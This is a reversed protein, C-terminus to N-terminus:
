VGLFVCLTSCSLTGELDQNRNGYILSVVMNDEGAFASIIKVTGWLQSSPSGAMVRLSAALM